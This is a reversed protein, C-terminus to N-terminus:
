LLGDWVHCFSRSQRPPPPCPPALDSVKYVYQPTEKKARSDNVGEIEGDIDDSGPM